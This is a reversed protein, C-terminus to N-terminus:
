CLVFGSVRGTAPPQIVCGKWGVQRCLMSAVFVVIRACQTLFMSIMEVVDVTLTLLGM